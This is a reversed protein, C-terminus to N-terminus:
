KYERILIFTRKTRKVKSVKIPIGSKTAINNAKRYAVTCHKCPSITSCVHIHIGCWKCHKFESLAGREEPPLIVELKCYECGASVFPWVTVHHHEKNEKYSIPRCIGWHVSLQQNSGSSSWEEVLGAVLLLDAKYMWDKRDSHLKQSRRLIPRVGKEGVNMMRVGSYVVHKYIVPDNGLDARTIILAYNNRVIGGQYHWHSKWSNWFGNPAPSKIWSKKWVIFKDLKHLLLDGKKEINVISWMYWRESDPICQGFAFM